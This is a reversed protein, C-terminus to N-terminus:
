GLTKQQKLVEKEIFHLKSPIIMCYPKKIKKNRLKSAKDYFIGGKGIGLRSCVIIKDLKLKKNKMSIELQELANKFDLGIDIL